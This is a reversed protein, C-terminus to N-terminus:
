EIAFLCEENLDNNVHEAIRRIVRYFHGGHTGAYTRYGSKPILLIEGNVPLNLDKPPTIKVKNDGLVSIMITM